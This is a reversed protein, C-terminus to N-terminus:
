RTTSGVSGADPDWGNERWKKACHRNHFRQSRIEYHNLRLPTRPWTPTTTTM